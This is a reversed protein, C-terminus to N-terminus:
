IILIESATLLPKPFPVKVPTMVLSTVTPKSM